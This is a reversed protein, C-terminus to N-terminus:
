PTIKEKLQLGSNSTKYSEDLIKLDKLFEILNGVRPGTFGPEFTDIFRINLDDIIFKLTSQIGNGMKRIAVYQHRQIININIFSSIFARIPQNSKQDIEQLQSIVDGGIGIELKRVYNTLVEFHSINNTYLKFILGFGHGIREAGESSGILKVLERESPIQTMDVNSTATKTPDKILSSNQFIKLTQDSAINILDQLNMWHKGANQDLIFLTGNFIATCAMQWYDNLQYYYWGTLTDNLQNQYIGKDNYAQMTFSRDSLDFGEEAGLRLLHYITEKRHIKSDEEIRSPEDKDSLLKLLLQAEESNEPIQKMNFDPILTTLQQNNITESDISKFFLEQNGVAINNRFANALLEGTILSKAKKTRRFVGTPQDDEDLVENILGIQRLSGVYYQGFIGSGFQWYSGVTEGQANYIGKRLEHVQLDIQKSAYNSGSIGEIGTLTSALAIIYESKRIFEWQEEYNLSGLRKAYEDLLWCYFSYNRIRSTVNNLGPMLHTYMQTSPNQMGLPDLGGVFSLREGFFPVRSENKDM